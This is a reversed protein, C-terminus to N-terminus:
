ALWQAGSIKVHEIYATEPMLEQWESFPKINYYSSLSDIITETKYSEVSDVLYIQFKSVRQAQFLFSQIQLDTLCPLFRLAILVDISNDPLTQIQDLADCEVMRAQSIGSAQSIAYESYEYGLIDNPNVGFAIFDEILFGKASAIELIKKGSSFKEEFKQYLDYHFQKTHPYLNGDTRNNDRLYATFGAPHAPLFEGGDFYSANYEDLSIM